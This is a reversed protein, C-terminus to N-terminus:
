QAQALFATIAAFENAFALSYLSSVLNKIRVQDCICYREWLLLGHQREWSEGDWLLPLEGLSLCRQMQQEWSDYIHEPLEVLSEWYDLEFRWDACLM